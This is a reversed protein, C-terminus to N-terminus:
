VLICMVLRSGGGGGHVEDRNVIVVPARKSVGLCAAIMLLLCHCLVGVTLVCQVCQHQGASIHCQSSNAITGTM